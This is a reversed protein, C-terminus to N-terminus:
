EGNIPVELSLNRLNEIDITLYKSTTNLNKHGLIGTIVPMPTNLTLLNSALSHRLSHPGHKRDSINLGVKKIYHNLIFYIESTSYPNLTQECIFIYDLDCQPRHNKIYDILLFQINRPLAVSVPLKTKYQIKEITQKDWKIEDFKLYTIDSRRLGLQAALTIMCKDRVGNRKSIDIADIIQKIEEPSFYSIIRNRKNTFITPFIDNGSYNSLNIKHMVNFFDRIIFQYTSKTSEAITSENIYQYVINIDFDSFSEVKKSDLFTLFYKITKSKSRITSSSLETSLSNLYIQMCNTLYENM